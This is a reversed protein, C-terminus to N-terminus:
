ADGDGSEPTEAPAESLVEKVNSLDIKDEGISLYFRGDELTVQEVIGKVEEVTETTEGDESEVYKEGVAYKGILSFANGAQLQQIKALEEAVIAYEVASVSELPVEKQDIVVYTEGNQYFTGEIVGQIYETESTNPNMYAAYGYKGIMANGNYQSFQTNLNEMQELSSFQALQALYDTDEMPNFPDQYQMQTVLLELFANKGLDGGVPESTTQYITSQNNSTEIIGNNNTVDVYSTNDSM